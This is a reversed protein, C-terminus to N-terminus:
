AEETLERYLWAQAMIWSRKVTAPSIGLVDATEQITLGGFFRCEVIRGQRPDIQELRRLAEDLALVIEAQEESVGVDLGMLEQMAELSVKPQDGGRKQRKRSEAYNILVHRMAKSAVSFFHTRGEWAREPQGVLKLYAEHILATTNLTQDGHWGQRKRRALARLEDYVLPFLADVARQDGEHMAVLLQTVTEQPSSAM